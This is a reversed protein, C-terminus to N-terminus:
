ITRVLITGLCKLLLAKIRNTFFGTITNFLILLLFMMLEFLMDIGDFMSTIGSNITELGIYGVIVIFAIRWPFFVVLATSIRYWRPEIIHASDNNRATSSYTSEDTKREATEFGDDVNADHSDSPEPQESADCTGGYQSSETKGARFDVESASYASSVNREFTEQPSCAIVADVNEIFFDTLYDYAINVQAMAEDSGGVDPHCEKVKKRYLSTLDKRSYAGTLGIIQEAQAKNM